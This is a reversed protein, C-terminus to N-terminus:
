ETWRFPADKQTLITMLAAISSFGLFSQIETASSQRPWSKGAEIKKPDVKIGESSVLHGLFVVSDLSVLEVTLTDASVDKVFTLYTDCGKEVMQQAKLFSVVRRPVYDLAGRGELQPLGPM